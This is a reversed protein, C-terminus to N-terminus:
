WTDADIQRECVTTSAIKPCVSTLVNLERRIQERLKALLKIAQKKAEGGIAFNVIQRFCNVIRLQTRENTGWRGCFTLLTAVMAKAAEDWTKHSDAKDRIETELETISVGIATELRQLFLKAGRLGETSALQRLKQKM